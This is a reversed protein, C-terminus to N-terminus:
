VLTKNYLELPQTHSIYRLNVSASLCLHLYSM